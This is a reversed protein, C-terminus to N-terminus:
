NGFGTYKSSVHLPKPTNEFINTIKKLIYCFCVNLAYNIGQNLPTIMPDLDLMKFCTVWNYWTANMWHM